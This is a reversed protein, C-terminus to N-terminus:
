HVQNGHSKQGHEKAQLDSLRVLFDTISAGVSCGCRAILRIANAEPDIILRAKHVGIEPASLEGILHIGTGAIPPEAPTWTVQLMGQPQTGSM